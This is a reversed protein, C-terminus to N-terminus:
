TISDKPILIGSGPCLTAGPGTATSDAQHFLSQSHTPAHPASSSAPCETPVVAMSSHWECPTKPKSSGGSGCENERCSACIILSCVFSHGNETVQVSWEHVYVAVFALLSPTM